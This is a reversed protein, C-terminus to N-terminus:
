VNYFGMIPLTLSERCVFWKHKWLSVKADNKKGNGAGSRTFLKVIVPKNHVYILIQFSQFSPLKISKFIDRYVSNDM